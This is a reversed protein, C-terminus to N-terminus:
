INPIFLKAIVSSISLFKINLKKKTFAMSNKSTERM